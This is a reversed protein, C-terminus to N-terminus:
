EENEKVGRYLLGGGIMLALGAATFLFIKIDGTRPIKPKKKVPHNVVRLVAEESVVPSDVTFYIPDRLKQYVTKVNRPAETEEIAYDGFELNDFGFRGKNDSVALVDRGKVQVNKWVTQGNETEKKLLRFTAGALVRNEPDVKLFRKAGRDERRNVAKIVLEEHRVVEFKLPEALLLYGKETEVEEFRYKGYRLGSVAIEGKKDTTLLTAEKGGYAAIGDKVEIPIEKNDNTTYILKFRVGSMRNEEDELDRYKILRVSGFEPSLAKPRVTVEREDGKPVQVLFPVTDEDPENKETMRRGFYIGDPVGNFVTATSGKVVAQKRPASDVANLEDVTWFELEEALGEGYQMATDVPIKWLRFTGGTESQIETYEIRIRNAGDAARVDPGSLWTGIALVLVAWLVSWLRFRGRRMERM